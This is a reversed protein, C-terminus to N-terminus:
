KQDDELMDYHFDEEMDDDEDESSEQENPQM